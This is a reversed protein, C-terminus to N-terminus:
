SEGEDGLTRSPAEWGGQQWKYVSQSVDGDYVIDIVVGQLVLDFGVCGAVLGCSAGDWAM